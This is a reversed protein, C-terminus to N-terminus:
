GATLLIYILVFIFAAMIYILYLGLKGPMVKRSAESAAEWVRPAFGNPVKTVPNSPTGEGKTIREPLGNPPKEGVKVATANRRMRRTTRSLAPAIPM